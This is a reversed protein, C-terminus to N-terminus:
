LMGSIKPAVWIHRALSKRITLYFSRVKIELPDGLPAYRVIRLSVGENLGMDRLRVIEEDDSDIRQVVMEQGLPSETLRLLQDMGDKPESQKM